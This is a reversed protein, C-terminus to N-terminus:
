NIKSHDPYTSLNVRFTMLNIIWCNLSISRNLVLYLLFLVCCTSLKNLIM